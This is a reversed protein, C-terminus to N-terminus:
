GASVAERRLQRCEGGEQNDRVRKMRSIGRGEVGVDHVFSCGARWSIKRRSLRGPARPHAGAPEHVDALPDPRRRRDRRPHHRGDSAQYLVLARARLDNHNVRGHTPPRRLDLPLGVAHIASRWAKYFTARRLPQGHTGCFVLGDPGAAAWRAVHAELEPVIASPIAVTRRGADSKPPGIVIEGSALEQLQAVVSVTGHLLDLHRRSLARLEGLRLGTFTATLVMARFPAAIADALAFVQEVTAVEREEPREIGAGKIVCPNKVIVSDEVATGVIARLLRYCKAVTSAGVGANLLGAHWGRVRATTLSNLEVAGLAPLIHLRLEGEYLERTRPRLNPREKLWQSSYVALTVRGADPDVWAGREIDARLGALYADAERKTRFTDDALYEIGDMRYRAQYRGSPLRRVGGWPSRQRAM